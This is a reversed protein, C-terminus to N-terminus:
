IAVFGMGIVLLLVAIAIWWESKNTDSLIKGRRNYIGVTPDNAAFASTDTLTDTVASDGQMAGERFPKEPRVYSMLLRMRTKAIKLITVAPNTVTIANM